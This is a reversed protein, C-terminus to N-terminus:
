HPYFEGTTVTVAWLSTLVAPALFEASQRPHEGLALINEGYGPPRTESFLCRHSRGGVEVLTILSPFIASTIVLCYNEKCAGCCDVFAVLFFFTGVATVIVPLLSGPTARHSLVPKVVIGVAIWGVACACFALLLTYHLFGVCRMGGEVVM